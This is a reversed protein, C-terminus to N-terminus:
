VGWSKLFEEAKRAKEEEEKSSPVRPSSHATSTKEEVPDNTTKEIDTSGQTNSEGMYELYDEYDPLEADNMYAFNKREDTEEQKKIM